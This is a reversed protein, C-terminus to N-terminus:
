LNVGLHDLSCIKSHDVSMVPRRAESLVINLRELTIGYNRLVGSESAVRM